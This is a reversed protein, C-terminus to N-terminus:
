TRPILSLWGVTRLFAARYSEPRVGKKGLGFGAAAANFGAGHGGCGDIGIREGKGTGALDEVGAVGGGEFLVAFGRLVGAEKNGAERARFRAVGPQGGQRAPLPRDLVGVVPPAVREPAFVAAAESVGVGGARQCQEPSGEQARHQPAPPAGGFFDELADRGSGTM